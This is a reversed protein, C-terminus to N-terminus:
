LSPIELYSLDRNSLNGLIKMFESKADNGEFSHQMNILFYEMSYIDSLDKDSGLKTGVIKDYNREITYIHAEQVPLLMEQKRKDNDPFKEVKYFYMSTSFHQKLDNGNKALWDINRNIVHNYIVGTPDQNLM